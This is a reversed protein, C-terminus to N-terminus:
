FLGFEDSLIGHKEVMRNYSKFSEKSEEKWRELEERRFSEVLSEELLASLDVKRERALRILDSNVSLNVSKKDANKDYGPQM